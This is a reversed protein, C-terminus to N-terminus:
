HAWPFDHISELACSSEGGTIITARSLPISCYTHCMFDKLVIRKMEGAVMESLTESSIGAPKIKGGM